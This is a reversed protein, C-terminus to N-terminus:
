TQEDSDVLVFRPAGSVPTLWGDPDAPTGHLPRANIWGMKHSQYLVLEARSEHHVAFGLVTYLDGKYHRYVQGVEPRTAPPPETTVSTM